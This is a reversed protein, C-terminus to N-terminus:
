VDIGFSRFTDELVKINKRVLNKEKSQDKPRDLAFLDITPLKYLLNAKATFDVEVPEDDGDEAM